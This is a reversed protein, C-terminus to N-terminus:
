RRLKEVRIERKLQAAVAPDFEAPNPTLTQASAAALGQLAAELWNGPQLVLHLACVGTVTDGGGIPNVPDIKPLEFRWLKSGAALFAAAPGDTILAAAAGMKLLAETGEPVDGCGTTERLEDRNIKVLTPGARLAACLPAGTMDVIVPRRCALAFECLRQVADGPSEAPLSGCLLLASHFHMARETQALCEAWERLTLAPAPEVLERLRRGDPQELTQCIRTEADTQIWVAEINEQQLLSRIRDGNMGGAPGALTASGGARLIARAANTAKGGVSERHSHVRLVDGPTSWDPLRLARQLAPSAGFCFLPQVEM